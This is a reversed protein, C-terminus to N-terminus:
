GNGKRRQRKNKEIKYFYDKPINADKGTDKDYIELCSNLLIFEISLKFIKSHFITSPNGMKYQPNFGNDECFKIFEDFRRKGKNRHIDHNGPVVLWNEKPINHFIEELMPIFEESLQKYEIGLGKSALDGSIIIIDIPNKKQISDLKFKM